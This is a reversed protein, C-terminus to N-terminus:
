FVWGGASLWVARRRFADRDDRDNTRKHVATAPDACVGSHRGVFSQLKLKGGGRAVSGNREITRSMSLGPPSATPAKSAASATRAAARDFSTTATTLPMAALAAYAMADAAVRITVVDDPIEPDIPTTM